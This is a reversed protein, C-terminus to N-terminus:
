QNRFRQWPSKPPRPSVTPEPATDSTDELDQGVIGPFFRGLADRLRRVVEPWRSQWARVERQVAPDGELGLKVVIEENLSRSRMVDLESRLTSSELPLRSVVERDVIKVKVLIIIAM